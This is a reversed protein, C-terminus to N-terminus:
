DYSWEFTGFIPEIELQDYFPNKSSIMGNDKFNYRLFEELQEETFNEVEKVEVEFEIKIKM